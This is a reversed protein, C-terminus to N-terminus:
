GLLQPRVRDLMAAVDGVTLFRLLSPTQEARSPNSEKDARV